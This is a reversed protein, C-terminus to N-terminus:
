DPKIYADQRKHENVNPAPTFIVHENYLPLLLLTM